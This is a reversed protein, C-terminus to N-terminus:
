RGLEERVALGIREITLPKKVYQGAGLRQTKKVDETESFGSVIIAKQSPNNAIIREYTEHGNIGPEMIMDLLILDASDNKLYEVAAEGSAVAVARYGLSDLIRCSIERQSAVDDVVLIREGRGMYDKVSVSVGKEAVPDRTIPFYLEFRTGQGTTAVDIYGKHDQMVNWVVALGLGTGSRGMKKKTYFPEFIKELDEGSIGEGTDLISVVAYEGNSIEHYGKLTRDLYRNETAILIEGQERIAEAANSVLNMIVKRVHVSSGSINLLDPDLRTTIAVGPHHRRLAGCEPSALYDTVLDNLNLPENVTAVGRAITLLDQVIAAARLGAERMTQLPRRLKNDEPLDMLLLEPYSVIGSLVNNLDHAVGGALLGLFEMKQSKQLQQELRKRESINRTVGLLGVPRHDPGYIFRVVVETWVIGGNKHVQELELVRMRSPDYRHEAELLEESLIRMVMEACSPTLFDEMNHCLADEVDYGLMGKISPSFYTYRMTALDFTWINDMVSDALLRYREESAKLAAEAQKWETIDRMVGAFGMPRGGTDYVVRGTVSSIARRGDKAKLTLEHNVVRGSMMMEKILEDREVPDAYIDLVSRGIM